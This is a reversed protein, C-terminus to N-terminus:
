KTEALNILHWKGVTFNISLRSLLLHPYCCVSVQEQYESPTLKDLEQFLHIRASVPRAHQRAQDPM